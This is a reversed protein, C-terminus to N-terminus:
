RLSLSRYKLNHGDDSHAKDDDPIHCWTTKSVYSRKPPVQAEMKLM